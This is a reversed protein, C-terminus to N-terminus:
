HNTTQDLVLSYLTVSATTNFCVSSYPYLFWVYPKTCSHLLELANAISNSCDQALGNACERCAYMICWPLCVKYVLYTLENHGLSMMHSCLVPDVNAWTIAQQRTAGLWYMFWYQIIMMSTGHCEYSPMLMFLDSPVLQYFLILINQFWM